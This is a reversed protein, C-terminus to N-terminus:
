NFIRSTERRNFWEWLIGVYGLPWFIVMLFIDSILNHMNSQFVNKAQVFSLFLEAKQSPVRKNKHKTDASSAGEKLPTYVNTLSFYDSPYFRLVFQFGINVWLLFIIVFSWFTVFYFISIWELPLPDSCNKMM